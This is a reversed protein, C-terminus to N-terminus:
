RLDIHTITSSSHLSFCTSSCFVKRRNELGLEKAVLDAVDDGVFSLYRYNFSRFLFANERLEGEDIRVVWENSHEPIFEVTNYDEDYDITASTSYVFVFFFLLLSLRSIFRSKM